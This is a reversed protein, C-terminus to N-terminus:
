AAITSALVIHGWAALHWYPAPWRAFRVDSYGAARCADTIEQRSYLNARWWRGILWRTLWNRRSVFWVLVGRSALRERLAGLARPVDTPSLYELMAATIIVDYGRWEEPLENLALVDAQRLDITEVGRRALRARFRELMVPTIDFGHLTASSRAEPQMADYLALTALGSGCGADLIRKAPHIVTSRRFVARLGRPYLTCAVFADYLRARRGYLQAPDGSSKWSERGRM